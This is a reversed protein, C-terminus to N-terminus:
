AERDMRKKVILLVLAAVAIGGGLIYFVTTGTGGTSPLQPGTENLVRVGGTVQNNEGISAYLNTEEIKIEQRGVMPNYGDPAKVEELYYSTNGKLGVIRLPAGATKIVKVKDGPKDNATAVRYGDATPVLSIAGGGESMRYLSFQADSLLTNAANHKVIEIGYTKTYTTSSKNWGKVYLTGTNANTQNKGPAEAMEDFIQAHENLTGTYSIMINTIGSVFSDAFDLEFGASNGSPDNNQTYDTGKVAVSWQGIGNQNNHEVIVSDKNLTIGTSPEDVFRVQCAGEGLTIKVTFDMEEGIAATNTPLNAGSGRIVISKTIDSVTNKESITVQGGDELSVLSGNGGVSSVLLYYGSPLNEFKGSTGPVTAQPTLPKGGAYKGEAYERAVKAFESKQTEDLEGQENKQKWVPHSGQLEIYPAGAGGTAFFAWWDNEISYLYFNQSSISELSFIRYLQYTASPIPNEITISGTGEAQAPFIIGLCMAALMAIAIVKRKM